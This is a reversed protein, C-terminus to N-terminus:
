AAHLMAPAVFQSRGHQPQVRQQVRAAIAPPLVILVNDGAPVDAASLIPRGLHTGGIRTQDEDVFFRVIDGLQSAMWTGAISTGFVGIGGSDAALQRGRDVLEHLWRVHGSCLDRSREVSIPEPAECPAAVSPDKVVLVSLEKSLWSASWAKVHLGAKDVVELLRQPVFHSCHDAVLMDFPTEALNPVQILLSGDDQLLRAADVLLQVPEEVHELVHLMTILDFEAHITDLTDSYFEEVRPISLVRDRFRNSLESGALRWGEHLSSFSRLMGGNGCGVDLMRGQTPLQVHENLRELLRQSRPRPTDDGAAFIVQEKGASQHYLDYQEYIDRAAAQWHADRTKQAHGCQGCSVFRFGDGAPKCDSSVTQLERFSEIEHLNDSGCLLCNNVTSDM